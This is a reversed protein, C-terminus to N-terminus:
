PFLIKNFVETPFRESYFDWPVNMDGTLEFLKGTKPNYSIYYSTAPTRYCTAITSKPERHELWEYDPVSDTISILKKIKDIDSTWTMPNPLRKPDNSGDFRYWNNYVDYRNESENEVIIIYILGELRAVFRLSQGLNLGDIINMVKERSSRIFDDQAVCTLAPICFMMYMILRKFMMIYRFFTRGSVMMHLSATPLWKPAPLTAPPIIMGKFRKGSIVDYTDFYDATLVNEVFTVM